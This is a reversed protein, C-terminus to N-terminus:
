LQGLSTLSPQGEQLADAAAHLEDITAMTGRPVYTDPSTQFDLGGIRNSGSELFYTIQDLEDSDTSLGPLGHLRELIVRQGWSDPGSDRLVSAIPMNSRPEQWGSILPLEPAYLSIADSRSLYSRGYGFRYRNGRRQVRGAVVPEVQGPLWVWVYADSGTSPRDSTSAMM